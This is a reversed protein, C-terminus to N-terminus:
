ANLTQIGLMHLCAPLHVRVSSLTRDQTPNSHGLNANVFSGVTLGEKRAPGDHTRPLLLRAWDHSVLWRAVAQVVFAGVWGSEAWLQMVTRASLPQWAAAVAAASSPASGAAAVVVAAASASGCNCRWICAAAVAAAAASGAAARPLQAGGRCCPSPPLPGSGREGESPGGRTASGIAPFPSGCHRGAWAM